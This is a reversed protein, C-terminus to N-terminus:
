LEKKTQEVESLEEGKWPLRWHELYRFVAYTAMVPNNDDDESIFHPSMKIGTLFGFFHRGHRDVCGQLEYVPISYCSPCMLVMHSKPKHEHPSASNDFSAIPETIPYAWQVFIEDYAENFGTCYEGLEDNNLLM